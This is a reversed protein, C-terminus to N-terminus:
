ELKSSCIRLQIPLNVDLRLGITGYIMGAVDMNCSHSSLQVVQYDMITEPCNKPFSIISRFGEVYTTVNVVGHVFYGSNRM